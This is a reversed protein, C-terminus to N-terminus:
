GPGRRGVLAADGDAPRVGDVGQDDYCGREVTGGPDESAVWVFDGGVSGGEVVGVDDDVLDSVGDGAGPGGCYRARQPLSIRSVSRRGAQQIM